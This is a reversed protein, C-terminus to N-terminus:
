KVGRGARWSRWGITGLVGALAVNIVILIAHIVYFATSRAPGSGLNKALLLWELIMFLALGILFGSAVRSLKM